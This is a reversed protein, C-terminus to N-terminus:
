RRIIRLEGVQHRSPIPTKVSVAYGIGDSPHTLQNKPGPDLTFLAGKKWSVLEMDRIAHVCRPHFLMHVSGDASCLSANVNNVRDKILPNSDPTENVWKIGADDLGQCLIDYDSQGAAARQGAKGSADGIIIIGPKHERVREILERTAEPTHSNELHIEDHWYWDRHRLQGLTWSMPNLNFDAALVIPLHKSIQGDKTFPSLESVNQERVFNLYVPLETVTVHRANLEQDAVVKSYSQKLGQLFEASVIGEDVSEQTSVHMSNYIKGDANKVFREWVWDEGNTTTTLLSRIYDSERMRSLLVDETEVPTDRVEDIWRWSFQMGRLPAGDGLVRTFISVVHKGSRVSVINSYSKFQKSSGWSLPPRCDSVWEFGYFDLWMFFERLTAQSLQDYTNAGIFGSLEPYHVIHHIAFHAGAFTKGTAIGGFFCFHVAPNHVAVAQWPAFQPADTM